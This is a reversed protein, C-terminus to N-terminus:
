EYQMVPRELKIVKDPKDSGDKTIYSAIYPKMPYTQMPDLDGVFFGAAELVEPWVMVGFKAFKGGKVKWYVKGDLISAALTDAAFTLESSPQATPRSQTPSKTEGREVRRQDVYADFSVYGHDIMWKEIVPMRELVEGLTHARTTVLWEMQTAPNVVKATASAPAEPLPPNQNGNTETM